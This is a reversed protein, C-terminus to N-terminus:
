APPLFLPQDRTPVPWPMDWIQMISIFDNHTQKVSIYILKYFLHLPTKIVKYFGHLPLINRTGEAEVEVDGGGPKARSRTVHIREEGSMEEM